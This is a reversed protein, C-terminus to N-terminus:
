LVCGPLAITAFQLSTRLVPIAGTEMAERFETQGLVRREHHNQGREMTFVQFRDISPFLNNVAKLFKLACDVLCGLGNREVWIM